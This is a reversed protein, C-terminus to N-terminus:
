RGECEPDGRRRHTRIGSLDRGGVARQLCAQRPRRYAWLFTAELQHRGVFGASVFPPRPVATTLGIIAVPGRLKVHALLAETVWAPTAYFDRGERAYGSVHVPRALVAQEVRPLTPSDFLQQDM